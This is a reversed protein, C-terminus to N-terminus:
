FCVDIRVQALRTEMDPELADMGEFVAIPTRAPYKDIAPEQLRSQSGNDNRELTTGLVKRHKGAAVRVPKGLHEPRQGMVLLFADRQERFSSM